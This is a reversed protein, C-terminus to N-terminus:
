LVYLINESPEKYTYEVKDAPGVQRGGYPSNKEVEM